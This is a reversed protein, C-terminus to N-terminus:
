KGASEPKAPAFLLSSDGYSLFRFRNSLAYAYTEKWADGIFAAILMLLTSRPQHFNTILLDTTKFNYGPIIMLSTSAMTHRLGNRYLWERLSEVSQKLTHHSPLTYAEWQAIQLAEMSMAPNVLTKVGLWYISELTRVTTTGVAMAKDPITALRNLLEDSLSFLEAHMQHDALSDTKIPQFTGAGVHLTVQHCTIQKEALQKLVHATFHLGATPAAVSGETTSYVTQYRERDSPVADRKIYPPLPTKGAEDLIEGFTVQDNDWHFDVRVPNGAEAAKEATLILNKAGVKLPMFLKGSGFRRLNGIMCYWSSGNVSSLASAYDAPDAPRLCFIEIQSGTERIFVLRAPIVKSNNFFLDRGAPLYEALNFFVDEMILGNIDRILLRSNDRKQVPFLAIREAPLDYNYDNPNIAAFSM